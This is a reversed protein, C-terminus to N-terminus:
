IVFMYRNIEGQQGGGRSSTMITPANKCDGPRGRRLPPTMATTTCCSPGCREVSPHTLVESSSPRASLSFVSHACLACCPARLSPDSRVFSFMDSQICVLYASLPTSSVAWVRDEFPWLLRAIEHTNCFAAFGFSRFCVFVTFSCTWRFCHEETGANAHKSLFHRPWLRVAASDNWYSPLGEVSDFGSLEFSECPSM